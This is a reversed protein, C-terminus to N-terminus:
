IKPLTHYGHGTDYILVLPSVGISENIQSSLQKKFVRLEMSEKRNPLNIRADATHPAREVTNDSTKRTLPSEHTWDINAITTVSM